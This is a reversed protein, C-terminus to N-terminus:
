PTSSKTNNTSTTTTSPPIHIVIKYPNQSTGNGLTLIDQLKFKAEQKISMPGLNPIYFKWKRFLVVDDDDLDRQICQRVYTFSATQKKSSPITIFGINQIISSQNMLLYESSSSSLSQCSLIKCFLESDDELSLEIKASPQNTQQQLSEIASNFNKRQCVITRKKTTGQKVTNGEEEEEEQKFLSSPRNRRRLNHPSQQVIHKEPTTTATTIEKKGKKQKTATNNNNNNNNNPRKNNSTNTTLEHNNHTTANNNNNNNPAGEHNWDLRCEVPKDFEQQAAQIAHQFSQYRNKGMNAKSSTKVNLEELLGEEWTMMKNGSLVTFPADHCEFFYVLHKKGIHKRALQRAGGVTLRPDYICAPWWGFGVGGAAWVIEGFRETYSPPLANVMWDLEDGGNKYYQDHINNNSGNGGQFIWEQIGKCKDVCWVYM